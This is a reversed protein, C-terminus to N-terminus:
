PSATRIVIRTTKSAATAPLRSLYSRQLRKLCTEMEAVAAQVNGQQFHKMFRKRSPRVFANEYQGITQIYNRFVDLLGNMVTVMIPNGTMRALQRHFDLNIESRRSFDDLATAETLQAINQTLADMDQPTARSCAERVIISELWIRAQTLQETNISGLHYMDMLGTIIAGGSDESVFAGGSAGKQLRLVGAHELYRLAERLTNRSVGFQVALAREAPLRSGVKLRGSALESRIQSAIEEFARASRVPAFAPVMANANANAIEAIPRARTAPSKAKAKSTTM